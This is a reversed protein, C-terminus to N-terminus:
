NCSPPLQVGAGNLYLLYLPESPILFIPLSQPTVKRQPLRSGDKQEIEVKAPIANRQVCGSM